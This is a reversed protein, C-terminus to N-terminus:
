PDQRTNQISRFADDLSQLRDAAKDARLPLLAPGPNEFSEAMDILSKSETLQPFARAVRAITTSDQARHASILLHTADQLSFESPYGEWLRLYVATSRPWNQEQTLAKALDRLHEATPDAVFTDLLAPRDDLDALISAKLANYKARDVTATQKDMTELTKRAEAYLGARRQAKALKIHLEAFQEKQATSLPTEQEELMQIARRYESEALDTSGLDLVYDGLAETHGVFEPFYRFFPLLRLHLEIWDSLPYSGEEGQGYVRQLLEISQSRAMEAENTSPFRSMIKVLTLLEEVPNEIGQYVRATRKLIELEYQNGRWAEAGERLVSQAALLAGQGGDSLSMDAIALRARAAYQDWGQAAMFYSELATSENGRRQQARGRLFHGMPSVALDPLEDLLQLAADAYAEHGLEIAAEAFVPLMKRLVARSQGGLGAFSSKINENLQQVDANAIAQLSTWFARDPREATNLPSTDFEAVPQGFLLDVADTLARHRQTQRENEPTIESLASRAETLLMHTLYLEAADLLVTTKVAGHAESLDLIVQTMDEYFTATAWHQLDMESRWGEARVPVTAAAAQRAEATTSLVPGALLAFIILSVSFSPKEV